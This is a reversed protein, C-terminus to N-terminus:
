PTGNTVELIFCGMFVRQLSPIIDKHIIKHVTFNTSVSAAASNTFIADLRAFFWAGYASLRSLCNRMVILWSFTILTCRAPSRFSRFLKSSFRTSNAFLRKFIFSNCSIFSNTVITKFYFLWTFVASFISLFVFFVANRFPSKTINRASRFRDRKGNTTNRAHLRIYFLPTPMNSFCVLISGGAICSFIFLPPRSNILSIVICALFAAQMASVTPPYIQMRMMNLWESFINVKSVFNRVTYSETFLTMSPLM